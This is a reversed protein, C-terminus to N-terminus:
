NIAVDLLSRKAAARLENVLSQRDGAFSVLREVEQHSLEGEPIILRFYKDFVDPHCARHARYWSDSQDSSYRLGDFVWSIPPFVQTPIEEVSKRREEPAKQVIARIKTRRTAEAHSRALAFGEM